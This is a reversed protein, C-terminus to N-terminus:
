NMKKLFKSILIPLLIMLGIFAFTLPTNRGNDAFFYIFLSFVVIPSIIILLQLYFNNEVRVNENIAEERNLLHPYNNQIFHYIENINEKTLEKPTVIDENIAIM